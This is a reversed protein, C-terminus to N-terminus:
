ASLAAALEGLRQEGARLPEPDIRRRRGDAGIVEAVLLLAAASLGRRRALALVTATELEVVAAGLAAWRDRAAPRGTM